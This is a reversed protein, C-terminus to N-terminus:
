RGSTRVALFARSRSPHRRIPGAPGRPAWGGISGTPPARRPWSTPAPSSGNHRHRPSAWRVATPACRPRTTTTTTPCRPARAEATCGSSSPAGAGDATTPPTGSGSIHYSFADVEPNALRGQVFSSITISRGHRVTIPANQTITYVLDLRVNRGKSAIYGLTGGGLQGDAYSLDLVIDGRHDLRAATV